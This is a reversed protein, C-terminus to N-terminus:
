FRKMLGYCKVLFLTCMIPLMCIKKRWGNDTVNKDRNNQQKM